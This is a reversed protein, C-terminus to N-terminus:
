RWYNKTGTLRLVRKMSLSQYRKGMKYGYLKFGCQVCFPIFMLPRKQKILRKFAAKVLKKGEAESKVNLFVEPHDAQSVGLDFNRRLQQMCTYKHAHYVCAEAEYSVSYGENIANYAFIMDENFITHLVFGGVEYYIDRRYAACVDSCFFAKIGLADIDEKTKIRSKDPYNFERSITELIGSDEGPLQRAYSVAVKGSLNKTLNEILKDNKPVADQTMLVVIDADSRKIAEDRTKGHDYEAETVHFLDINYKSIDFGTDSVFKDFFKKETNAVIIKNISVSQNMLMNLLSLFKDNPKYVPIIVDIKM